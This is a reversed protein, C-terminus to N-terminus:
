APIALADVEQQVDPPIPGFQHEREALFQRARHAVLARRAAESVFHSREGASFEQELETVVEADLSYARKVTLAM